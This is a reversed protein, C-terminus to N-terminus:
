EEIASDLEAQLTEISNNRAPTGGAGLLHILADGANTLDDATNFGYNKQTRAILATLREADGLSLKFRMVTHTKAPKESPADDELENKADKEFSEDIELDDLAIDSASFIANLDTDGYPLYNQLDDVGIDKLIEGLSITDDIGYRANDIVGIEKAKRDDIEGLNVVPVETFGLEVAQEWRHEGGIIEYGGQGAVQRAIIPKFIGNRQISERIKAENASDVKNSNWPNKRLLGVEVTLYEVKKQQM